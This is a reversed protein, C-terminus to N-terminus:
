FNLLWNSVIVVETFSNEKRIRNKMTEITMKEVIMYKMSRSKLSPNEDIGAAQQHHTTVM